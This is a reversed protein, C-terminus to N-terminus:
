AASRRFTTRWRHVALRRGDIGQRTVPLRRGADAVPNGTVIASRAARREAFIRARIAALKGRVALSSVARGRSAKLAAADIKGLALSGRSRRGGTIAQSIAAQFASDMAMREGIPLKKFAAMQRPHASLWGAPISIRLEVGRGHPVARARAAAAGLIMRGKSFFPHGDTGGDAGLVNMAYLRDWRKPLYEAIWQNGATVAGFALFKRFQAPDTAAALDPSLEVGAFSDVRGRRARAM